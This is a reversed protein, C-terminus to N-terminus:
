IQTKLGGLAALLSLSIINCLPPCQLSMCMGECLRTGATSEQAHPSNSSQPSSGRLTTRWRAVVLLSDSLSPTPWCPHLLADRVATPIRSFPSPPLRGSRAIAAAGEEEAGARWCCRTPRRPPSSSGCVRVVSAVNGSICGRPRHRPGPRARRM